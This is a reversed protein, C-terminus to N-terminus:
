KKSKKAPKKPEEEVEKPEEKIEEKVESVLVRNDSLLEKAREEKFEVTDGAKYKKGTYKDKFEREIKLKM